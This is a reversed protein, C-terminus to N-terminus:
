GTAKSKSHPIARSIKFLHTSYISVHIGIFVTELPLKM